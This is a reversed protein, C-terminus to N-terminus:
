KSVDSKNTSHDPHLYKMKNRFITTLQKTDVEFSRAFDFLRFYDIESRIPLLVHKECPCYAPCENRDITRQCQWCKEILPLTNISFRPILNLTSM